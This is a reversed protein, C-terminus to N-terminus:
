GAEEGGVGVDRKVKGVRKEKTTGLVQLHTTACFFIHGLNEANTLLVHLLLPHICNGRGSTASSHPKSISLSLHCCIHQCNLTTNDFSLQGDKIICTAVSNAWRAFPKQKTIATTVMMPPTCLFVFIDTIMRDYSHCSHVRQTTHIYKQPRATAPHAM